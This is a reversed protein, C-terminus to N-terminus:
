PTVRIVLSHEFGGDETTVTIVSFGAKIANLKGNNDVVAVTPNSSRWSVQCNSANTPYVMAKLTLSDKKSIVLLPADSLSVGEVPVNSPATEVLGNIAATLRNAQLDIDSQTANENALAEEAVILVEALTHWSEATYKSEDLNRALSVLTQLKSKDVIDPASGQYIHVFNSFMDPSLSSDYLNLTGKNRSVSATYTNYTDVMPTGYVSLTLGGRIEAMNQEGTFSSFEVTHNKIEVLVNGTIVSGTAAGVVSVAANDEVRLATSGDLITGMGGSAFITYAGSKITIVPNATLTKGDNNYPAGAYLFPGWFAYATEVGNDITINHGNSYLNGIDTRIDAFTLDSNAVMPAVTGKLTYKGGSTILCPKHPMGKELTELSLEVDNNLRIEGGDPSDNILAVAQEFTDCVVGNALIDGHSIAAAFTFDRRSIESYTTVDNIAVARLYVSGGEPNSINVAFPGNYRHRGSELTPDSLYGGSPLDYSYDLTYYIDENPTDTTLSIEVQESNDYLARENVVAIVPTEAPLKEVDASLSNAVAQVIAQSTYTAGSVADISDLPKGEAVIQDVVGKLSGGGYFALEIFDRNSEAMLNSYDTKDIVGSISSNQVIVEVAVPYSQMAGFYNEVLATGSYFGDAKEVPSAYGIGACSGILVACLAGCAIGKNKM